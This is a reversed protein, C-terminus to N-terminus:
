RSSSASPRASGSSSPGASSPAASSSPSAGSSSPVASGSPTVASASPAASPRAASASPAASDLPPPVEDSAVPLFTEGPIQVSPPLGAAASPGGFAGVSTALALLGLLAAVSAASFARNVDWTTRMWSRAATLDPATVTPRWPRGPVLERDPRTLGIVLLRGYYALPGFTGLLVIAAVPQDLALNVLSSRAEFAAFGPLGISAVVVLGFAVVLIPSRLAWGRLDSIRGTGLGTRVGGAWAAFAGRTVVFALIWTRGPPWAEPQLAALALLVVGADGIISYGVVHELDDQVFAAIASLVISAIAVALVVARAADMDVPLPAVSADIWALAVVALSAPALAMLIPLATEPVSDTLRAAWLHFPIAGFRVAVALAFALYALGFVVPQAALQTLDRGFWATAAIALTGAVVVARAERIGVTAGVRGGTPVLTALVGFLGAATAVLVSARPDTLAMTLAVAALIALTVSPADRRTGAALGTVYLGLGVLSGLILFLRLYATTVLGASGVVVVQAPDMAIALITVVFLGVLGVIAASRGRRRLAFALCASGFAIVVFAVLSMATRPARRRARAALRPDAAVCAGTALRGAHVHRTRLGRHRRDPRRGRPRRRRWRPDRHSGGDHMEELQDPTGGLGTRVLLAGSLLLGLGLGIRMVDRGNVVPLVALAALAFGAAQAEPPGLAPAGLGHSGYGVVAAAAAVFADTPWGVSSGGTRPDPGRAAIWLLYGALVAAVLRGAIGVPSAIPDALFPAGLLAVVLGLIAVRANRASGAIVAGIVVALAVGGLAPNM